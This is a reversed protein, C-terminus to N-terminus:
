YLIITCISRTPWHRNAEADYSTDRRDVFIVGREDEYWHWRLFSAHWPPELVKIVRDLNPHRAIAELVTLHVPSSRTSIHEVIAPADPTM